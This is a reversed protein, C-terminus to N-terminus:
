SRVATSTQCPKTSRLVLSPPETLWGETSPLISGLAHPLASPRSGLVALATAWADCAAASTGICVAIAGTPCPLGTRPDLLHGAQQQDGSIALCRDSVDVKVSGRGEPHEVLVRWPEGDPGLGIGAASSSGGHIFASAIGAERLVTAARDIAYGKAVGGLDVTAGDFAALTRAALDLVIRGSGSRRIDFAGACAERVRECLAFLDFLEDDLSETAGENVRYVVSGREFRTLRRHAEEIEELAEEGAARLWPEPGGALVVEFRCGM